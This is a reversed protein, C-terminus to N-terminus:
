HPRTVVGRKVEVEVDMKVGRVRVLFPIKPSIAPMVAM